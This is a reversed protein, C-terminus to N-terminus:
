ELIKYAKLLNTFEDKHDILLKFCSKSIEEFQIKLDTMKDDAEQKLLGSNSGEQAPM